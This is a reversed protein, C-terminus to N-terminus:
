APSTVVAVMPCELLTERAAAGEPKGLGVVALVTGDMGVEMLWGTMGLDDLSILPAAVGVDGEPIGCAFRTAGGEVEVAVGDSLEVDEVVGERM